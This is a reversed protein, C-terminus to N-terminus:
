KGVEEVPDHFIVVTTYVDAALKFNDAPSDIDAEYHMPIAYKPRIMSVAEAADRYDMTTEGEIPLFVIDVDGRDRMAPILDTDGAYYLKLGGFIVEYGFGSGRPHFSSGENYAPVAAFQIGAHEVEDGEALVVTDPGITDEVDQPGFLGSDEKLLKEIDSSSANYPDAHSVLILDAKKEQALDDPINVPDFFIRKEGDELMFASNGFFSISINEVQITEFMNNHKEIFKKKKRM